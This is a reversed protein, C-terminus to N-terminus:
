TAVGVGAEVARAGVAAGKASPATANVRELWKVALEHKKTSTLANLGDSVEYQRNVWAGLNSPHHGMAAWLEDLIKDFEVHQRDPDFDLTRNIQALSLATPRPALRVPPPPGTAAQAQAQQVEDRSAIGRKVEYGLWALARGVASTSANEIYSTKNVFSESRVEFAYDAGAPHADDKNLYVEARMIVFGAERDHEVIQVDIRGEPYDQRYLSLREAVSVYSALKDGGGKTTSQSV